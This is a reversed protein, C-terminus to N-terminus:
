KFRQDEVHRIVAEMDDLYSYISEHILSLAKDIEEIAKERSLSPPFKKKVEAILSRKSEQTSKLQAIRATSVIANASEAGETLAIWALIRTQILQIAQVTGAERAHQDRRNKNVRDEVTRKYDQAYVAPCILLLALLTVVPRTMTPEKLM